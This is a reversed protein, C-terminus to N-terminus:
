QYLAMQSQYHQAFFFLCCSSILHLLARSIINSFVILYYMLLLTVHFFHLLPLILIFFYYSLKQVLVLCLSYWALFKIQNLLLSYFESCTTRRITRAFFIHILLQMALTRHHKLNWSPQLTKWALSLQFLFFYCM